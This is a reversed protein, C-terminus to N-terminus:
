SNSFLIIFIIANLRNVKKVTYSKYLVGKSDVQLRAKSYTTVMSNIIDSLGDGYFTENGMAQGVWNKSFYFFFLNLIM